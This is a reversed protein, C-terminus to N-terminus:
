VSMEDGSMEDGSMEGYPMRCITTKLTDIPKLGHLFNHRISLHSPKTDKYIKTYKKEFLPMQSFKALFIYNQISYQQGSKMSSHPKKRSIKLSIEFAPFNLFSQM